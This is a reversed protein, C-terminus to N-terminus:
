LRHLGNKAQWRVRDYGNEVQRSKTASRAKLREDHRILRSRPPKIRNIPGEHGEYKLRTMTAKM